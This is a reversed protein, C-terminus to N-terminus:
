TSKIPDGKPQNSKDLIESITDRENSLDLTDLLTKDKFNSFKRPGMKKIYHPINNRYLGVRHNPNIAAEKDDNGIDNYGEAIM